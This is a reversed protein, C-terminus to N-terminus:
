STAKTEQLRARVREWEAVIFRGFADDPNRFDLVYIRAKAAQAAPTPRTNTNYSFCASFEGADEVDKRKASRGDVPGNLVDGLEGRNVPNAGPM